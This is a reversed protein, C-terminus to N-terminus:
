KYIRIVYFFLLFVLTEDNTVQEAFGRKYVSNFPKEYKDQHQIDVSKFNNREQHVLPLKGKTTNQRKRYQDHRVFTEKGMTRKKLKANEDDTDSIDITGFDKLKEMGRNIAKDQNVTKKPLDDTRKVNKGNLTIEPSYGSSSDVPWDHLNNNPTRFADNNLEQIYCAIVDKNCLEM